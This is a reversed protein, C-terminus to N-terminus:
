ETPPSPTPRDASHPFRLMARQTEPPANLFIARATDAAANALARATRELTDHAQDIDAYEPGASHEPPMKRTAATIWNRIEATDAAIAAMRRHHTIWSENM